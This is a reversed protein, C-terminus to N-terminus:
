NTILEKYRKEIDRLSDGEFLSSYVKELHKLYSYGEDYADKDQYKVALIYYCMVTENLIDVYELIDKSEELKIIMRSYCEKINKIDDETAMGSIIMWYGVGHLQEDDKCIYYFLSNLMEYAEELYKDNGNYGAIIIKGTAVSKMSEVYLYLDKDMDAKDIIEEFCIQADVLYKEERTGTYALADFKALHSLLIIEFKKSDFVGNECKMMEKCYTLAGQYYSQALLLHELLYGKEYQRLYYEALAYCSISLTNNTEYDEIDLTKSNEIALELTKCYDALKLEYDIDRLDECLLMLCGLSLIKIETNEKNKSNAIKELIEIAEYKYKDEGYFITQEFYAFAKWFEIRELQYDKANSLSGYLESYAVVSELYKGEIQLTKAKQYLASYIIERDELSDNPILYLVCPITIFLLIVILVKTRFSLLKWFSRTKERSVSQEPENSNTQEAEIHAHGLANNLQGKNLIKIKVKKIVKKGM